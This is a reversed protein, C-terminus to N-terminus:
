PLMLKQGIIILNGDTLGNMRCIADVYGRTGYIKISIKDLTDGKQVVYYEKNGSPSQVDAADAALDSNGGSKGGQGSGSDAGADQEDSGEGADQRGGSEGTDKGTGGDSRSSEGADGKSGSEPTEKKGGGDAKVERSVTEVEELSGPAGAEKPEGTEQEGGAQQARPSTVSQSLVELSNQVAEMKDYNNITSIGIVLVVVVLAISVAYAFRANQRQEKYEMKEKVASRFNKAARDEVMESPTVGIKKRTNIMYNQMSPNKEYFIYHGGMQMLDGFKSAYFVEEESAADRWVFITNDKKFRREHVRKVGKNIGAPQGEGILCWGVIEQGSFFRKKEEELRDWAERSIRVDTGTIEVDGLKLAGAVYVVDQDDMKLIEGTLVAGVYGEETKEKLQNLYTDVYDEVYIKPEDCVNGIQKVNKPFEREM